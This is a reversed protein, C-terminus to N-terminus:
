RSTESLEVKAWEEWLNLGTAAEILDSLHAGGVRSATELFYVQGDVARIFETHSVGRVLGFAAM